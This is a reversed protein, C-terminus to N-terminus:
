SSLEKDAYIDDIERFCLFSLFLTFASMFISGRNMPELDLVMNGTAHGAHIGFAFIFSSLILLPVFRIRPNMRLLAYITFCVGIVCVLLDISSENELLPKWHDLFQSGQRYAHRDAFADAISTIRYQVVSKLFGYITMLALGIMGIGVASSSEDNSETADNEQDEM